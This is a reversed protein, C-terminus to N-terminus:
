SRRSLEFHEPCYSTEEGKLKLQPRGCFTYPSDGFPYRCDSDGLDLLDLYRPEVCAVRVPEINPAIPERPKEQHKTRDLKRKDKRRATHIPAIASPIEMRHMRSIVANKTLWTGFKLNMEVAIRASSYRDAVLERLAADHEPAWKLFGLNVIREM